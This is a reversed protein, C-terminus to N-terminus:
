FGKQTFIDLISLCVQENEKINKVTQPSAINAIIISENQYLLFAEKPSVNPINDASSTALWCLVSRDLYNKLDEGIM